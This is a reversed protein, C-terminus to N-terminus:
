KIEDVLNLFQELCWILWRQNGNFKSINLEPIFEQRSPGQWTKFYYDVPRPMPVKNPTNLSPYKKRFLERILYKSDGNRVRVLDLPDAMQLSDYPDFFKLDAVSFANVYSGYSEEASVTDMFGLFDIKKGKRYREFLYKISTPERLVEKPEVYVYRHYFDDFTWDKSLLQDMGGFVDDSGAGIIMLNIGDAKAQRAAYYIQPEISHVPGGKGLMIPILTERVVDWDIDVYHLTLGSVRAFTEARQLEERQFDGGLFRFTYADCGSLYSALIASDMGGSLLLGLKNGACERLEIIKNKIASDIDDATKVFIRNEKPLIVRNYKLKSTFHVDRREVYRLALFSSMCFNKDIM